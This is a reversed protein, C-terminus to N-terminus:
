IEKTERPWIGVIWRCYCWESHNMGYLRERWKRHTCPHTGKYTSNHITACREDSFNLCIFVVSCYLHKAKFAWSKMACDVTEVIRWIFRYLHISEIEVYFYFCIYFSRIKQLIYVFVWRCTCLFVFVNMGADVCGCVSMKGNLQKGLSTCFHYDDWHCYCWLCAYRTGEQGKRMPVYM